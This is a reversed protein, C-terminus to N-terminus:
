RVKLVLHVECSLKKKDLVSQLNDIQSGFMFDFFKLYKKNYFNSNIIISRYLDSIDSGFWWEGLTKFKFKKIM